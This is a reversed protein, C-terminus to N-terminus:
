LYGLARLRAKVKELDEESYPREEAALEHTTVVDRLVYVIFDTVSDYGAGEIAAGIKEYLPRPIKITVKDGGRSRKGM